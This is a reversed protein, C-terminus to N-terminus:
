PTQWLFSPSQPSPPPDPGKIEARQNNSNGAAQTGMARLWLLSGPVTEPLSRLLSSPLHPEVSAKAPLWPAWPTPASPRMCQSPPSTPYSSAAHLYSGTLRWFLLFSGPLAQAGLVHWTPRPQAPPHPPTPRPPDAQAIEESCGSTGQPHGPTPAGPRLFFAWSRFLM